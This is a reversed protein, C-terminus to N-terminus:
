EYFLEIDGASNKHIVLGNITNMPFLGSRGSLMRGVREDDIGIFLVVAEERTPDLFDVVRTLTVTSIAGSDRAVEFKLYNTPRNPSSSINIFWKEQIEDYMTKLRVYAQQFSVPVQHPTSPNITLVGSSLAFDINSSGTSSLNLEVITTM